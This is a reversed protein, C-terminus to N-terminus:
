PSLHVVRQPPRRFSGVQIHLILTGVPLESGNLQIRQCQAVTLSHCIRGLADTVTVKVPVPGVEGQAIWLQDRFPNPGVVLPNTSDSNLGNSFACDIPDYSVCVEDVLFYASPFNGDPNVVSVTVSDIEHFRGISIQEYASDPIIFGNLVQWQSAVSPPAELYLHAFNPLPTKTLWIDENVTFRVGVHSTTLRPDEITGGIGAALKLSVFVPLGPVLPESLAAGIIECYDGSGSASALGCYANGHSPWQNVEFNQPVDAWNNECCANFYEPSRYWRDWGTALYVQNTGFPCTSYEEFSGNPVLNQAFSTTVILAFPAFALPRMPTPNEPEGKNRLNQEPSGRLYSWSSTGYEALTAASNVDLQQQDKTGQPLREAM